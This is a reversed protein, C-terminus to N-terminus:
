RSIRVFLEFRPASSMTGIAPTRLPSLGWMLDPGKGRGFTYLRGTSFMQYISHPTREVQAKKEGLVQVEYREMVIADGPEVEWWARTPPPPAVPLAAAVASVRETLQARMQGSLASAPRAVAPLSLSAKRQARPAEGSFIPPLGETAPQARLASQAFMAGLALPVVRLVAYM